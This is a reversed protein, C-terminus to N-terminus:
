NSDGSPKRSGIPKPLAIPKAKGYKALAQDISIKNFATRSGAAKEEFSGESSSGKSTPARNLLNSLASLINAQPERLIVNQHSRGHM